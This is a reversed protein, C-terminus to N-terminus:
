PVHRRLIGAKAARIQELEEAKAAALKAEEEEKALREFEAERAKDELIAAPADLKCQKRYAQYEKYEQKHAESVEDELMNNILATEKDAPYRQRILESVKKNYEDETYKPEDGPLVEEYDDVTENPMLYTARGIIDQTAKKRLKGETATIYCRTGKITVDIM